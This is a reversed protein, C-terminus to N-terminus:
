RVKPRGDRRRALAARLVSASVESKDHLVADKAANDCAKVIEAYSLGM